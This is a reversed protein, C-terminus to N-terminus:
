RLITPLYLQRDLAQGGPSALVPENGNVGDHSGEGNEFLLNGGFGLPEAGGDLILLFSAVRDGIHEAELIATLDILPSSPSRGM